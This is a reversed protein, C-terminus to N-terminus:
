AHKDVGLVTKLQQQFVSSSAKLSNSGRTIKSISVQLNKALERQTLQNALLGDIIRLRDAIAHQEDLTLVFRLLEDLQTTNKTALCAKLLLQWGKENMVFLRKEDQDTM